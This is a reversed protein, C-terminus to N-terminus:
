SFRATSSSPSTNRTTRCPSSPPMRRSPSSRTQTPRTTPTPGRHRAQPLQRRPPQPGVSRPRVRLRDVRRQRQSPGPSRRRGQPLHAARARAHSRPSPTSRPAACIAATRQEGSARGEASERRVTWPLRVINAPTGIRESVYYIFKGDPSWMPSHDQGNFHTLQRPNSGDAECIWIDDNSSGRYGKRYWTGPGRVYAIQDGTPSSSGRAGRTSPSRSRGPGGEVPVTYLESRARSDTGRTSAFLVHKGDPSWGTVFDDASDFTLRTPQGGEVPVVFVDYSGHRNSSFASIQRRPQLGPNIDHNEHMTVPRAVGGIARVVWIDGLYSFAVLKGDPSIDPLAPSAFRSRPPCRRFPSCCWRRM